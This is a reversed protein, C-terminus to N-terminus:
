SSSNPSNGSTSVLHVTKRKRRNNAQEKYTAWRCNKPNYPGNNNKRDLTKGNPRDGMDNYFNQFSKIWRKCMKIGRGGYREYYKGLKNICRSKAGSWSGYARTFSKGHKMQRNSARMMDRRLCGCSSTNGSRIANQRVSFRNGCDCKCNCMTKHIKTDVFESIVVLRGRRQGIISVHKM